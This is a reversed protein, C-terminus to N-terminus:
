RSTYQNKKLYNILLVFLVFPLVYLKLIVTFETRVLKLMLFVFYVSFFDKYYINRKLLHKLINLILLPLILPALFGFNLISELIMSFATGMKSNTYYESSFEGLSLYNTDLFV